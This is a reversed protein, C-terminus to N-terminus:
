RSIQQQQQVSKLQEPRLPIMSGLDFLGYPPLLNLDGTLKRVINRGLGVDILLHTLSTTTNTSTGSSNLTAETPPITVAPTTTSSSSTLHGQPTLIPLGLETVWVFHQANRLLINSDVISQSPTLHIIGGISNHNRLWNFLLNTNSSLSSNDKNATNSDDSHGIIVLDIRISSPLKTVSNPRRIIKLGPMRSMWIRGVSSHDVISSIDSYNLCSMNDFDVDNHERINASSSGISISNDDITHSGNDNNNFTYLGPIQKNNKNDDHNNENDTGRGDDSYQDLEDDEEDDLDDLGYQNPKPALNMLLHLEQRYITSMISNDTPYEDSVDESTATTTDNVSNNNNTKACYMSPTVLLVCAGLTSLYRAINLSLVAGLHNSGNSIILIRAPPRHIIRQPTRNLQRLHIMINDILPRTASEIFRGWTIGHFKNSIQTDLNLGTTLYNFLRQRQELPFIPVRQGTCTYWYQNNRQKISNIYYQKNNVNVNFNSGESHVTVSAALPPSSSSSTAVVSSTSNHQNISKNNSTTIQTNNIKHKDEYHSGSSTITLTTRTSATMTTILNSSQTPTTFLPIGVGDPGEIFHPLSSSVSSNNMDSTNTISHGERSDVMEYFASKNFLALNGEFDFDEDIFEEVCIRDWDALNRQGGSGGGNLGTNGGNRHNHSNNNNNDRPHGRNQAHRNTSGSGGCNFQGRSGPNTHRHFSDSEAGSIDSTVGTTESTSYSRRKSHRHNNVGYKRAPSLDNPERISAKGLANDLLQLDNSHGFGNNIDNINSGSGPAGATKHIIPPSDPCVYVSCANPINRLWERRQERSSNSSKNPCKVPTDSGSSEGDSATSLIRINQIFRSEVAFSPITPPYNNIVADTLSIKNESVNSVVGVIKGLQSSTLEVKFGTYQSTM